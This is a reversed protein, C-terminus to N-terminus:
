KSQLLRLIGAALLLIMGAIGSFLDVYHGPSNPLGWGMGLVWHMAEAVHTFVVVAFCGCGALLLFRAAM